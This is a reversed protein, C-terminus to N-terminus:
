EFNLNIKNGTQASEYVAMALTVTKVGAEVGVSPQQGSRVCEFFHRFADTYRTNGLAEPPQNVQNVASSDRTAWSLREWIHQRGFLQAQGNATILEIRPFDVYAGAGICGVTLSAIAGNAFRLTIAAASESPTDIPNSAEAMVSVPDGLLYCVADFLHCSNENIFGNGNEPDWLWGDAAPVWGFVYQGNLLWGQGLEGDMLERLKVIAPHFRFSFATMVTAQRQRCLEALQQAHVMNTAWPKEIFMPLGKDAAAEILVERGRPPTAICLADLQGQEFMEVGDRYTEVGYQEAYAALGGSTKPNRDAVAVLAAEEMNVLTRVLQQGFRLGVVGVRIKEM